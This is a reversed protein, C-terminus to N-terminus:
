AASRSTRCQIRADEDTVCNFEYRTSGKTLQGTM